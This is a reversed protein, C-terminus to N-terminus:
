DTSRATACKPDYPIPLSKSENDYRSPTIRKQVSPEIGHRPTFGRYSHQEKFQERAEVAEALTPYNKYFTKGSLQIRLIFSNGRKAIGSEGSTNNKYVGRNLDNVGQTGDRLNTIGNDTPNNNKHDIKEVLNGTFWVWVLQHIRYTKYKTGPVRIRCTLYGWDDPKGYVRGVPTSWKTLQKTVVLTRQEKSYGLFSELHLLLAEMEPTQGKARKNFIGSCHELQQLLTAEAM